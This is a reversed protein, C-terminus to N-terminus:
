IRWTLIEQGFSLLYKLFTHNFDERLVKCLRCPFHASFGEVYGLLGNLGLNDGIVEVLVVHIQYDIGDVKLAFGDTELKKMEDLYIDFVGKQQRDSSNIVMNLFINELKANHKPELSKIVTYKVGVKHIVSHSGLPNATELDDFFDFVPIVVTNKKNMHRLRVPHERWMQGDRFDCIIDNSGDAMYSTINKLVGPLLLFQEIVLKQKVYEGTIQKVRHSHSFNNGVEPIICSDILFTQPAIFVGKKQFFKSQKWTTELGNFPNEMVGILDTLSHVRESSLGNEEVVSNVEYRLATMVPSIFERCSQIIDNVASLPIKPNSRLKSVFIAADSLIGNEDISDKLVTFPTVNVSPQLTALSTSSKDCDSSNVDMDDNAIQSHHNNEFLVFNHVKEIHLRLSQFRNFDRPCGGQGCILKDGYTRKNHFVKLHFKYADVSKFSEECYACSISIPANVQDNM